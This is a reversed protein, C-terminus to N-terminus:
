IYPLPNCGSATRHPYGLTFPAGLVSEVLSLLTQEFHEIHAPFATKLLIKFRQVDNRDTYRIFILGAVYALRTFKENRLLLFIDLLLVLIGVADDASDLLPLTSDIQENVLRQGAFLYGLRSM